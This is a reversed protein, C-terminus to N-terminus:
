SKNGPNVLRRRLRESFGAPLSFARDDGVLQVVNRTGDLIATCHDCQQFHRRMRERLGPELEDDIYDSIEKWVEECSIEIAQPETM